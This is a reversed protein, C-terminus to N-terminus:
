TLCTTRSSRPASKDTYMDAWLRRDAKKLPGYQSREECSDLHNPGTWQNFADLLGFYSPPMSVIPNLGILQHLPCAVLLVLWYDSESDTQSTQVWISLQPELHNSFEFIPHVARHPVAPGSTSRVSQTICAICNRNGSSLARMSQDALRCVIRSM